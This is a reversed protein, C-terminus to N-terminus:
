PSSMGAVLRQGCHLEGNGRNGGWVKVYDKWGWGWPGRLQIHVLGKVYRCLSCAGAQSSIRCSSVNSLPGSLRKWTNSSNSQM